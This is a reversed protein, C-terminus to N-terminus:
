PKPENNPAGRATSRRIQYLDPSEILGQGVGEARVIANVRKLGNIYGIPPAAGKTGKAVQHKSQQLICKQNDTTLLRKTYLQAVKRSMQTSSSIGEM